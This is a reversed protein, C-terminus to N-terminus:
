EYSADQWKQYATVLHARDSILMRGAYDIKAKIPDETKQPGFMLHPGGFFTSVDDCFIHNFYSKFKHSKRAYSHIKSANQVNKNASAVNQIM